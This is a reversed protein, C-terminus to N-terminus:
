RPRHPLALYASLVGAAAILSWLAWPGLAYAAGGLIPGAGTGITYAAGHLGQYRGVLGSPTLSGLYAYAVSSTIM